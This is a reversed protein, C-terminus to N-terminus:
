FTEGSWHTPYYKSLLGDREKVLSDYQTKLSKYKASWVANDNRLLFLISKLERLEDSDIENVRDTLQIVREKLDANEERLKYVEPDTWDINDCACESESHAHCRCGKGPYYDKKM